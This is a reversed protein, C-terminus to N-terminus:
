TATGSSTLPSATPLVSSWDPSTCHPRRWVRAGAVRLALATRRVATLVAATRSPSCGARCRGTHTLLQILGSAPVDARDVTLRAVRDAPAPQDGLDRQPDGAAVVCSRRMAANDVPDAVAVAVSFPVDRGTRWAEPILVPYAWSM